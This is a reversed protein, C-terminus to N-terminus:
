LSNSNNNDDDDDNSYRNVIELGPNDRYTGPPIRDSREIVVENWAEENWGKTVKNWWITVENWIITM